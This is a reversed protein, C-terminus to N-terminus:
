DSQGERTSRFFRPVFWHEFRHCSTTLRDCTLVLYAGLAFAVCGALAVALSLMVSVLIVITGVVVLTAGLFGRSPPGGMVV